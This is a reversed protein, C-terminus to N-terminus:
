HHNTNICGKVDCNKSTIPISYMEYLGGGVSKWKLERVEGYVVVRPQGKNNMNDAVFTTLQEKTVTINANPDTFLLPTYDPHIPKMKNQKRKM